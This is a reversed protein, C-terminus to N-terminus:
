YGYCAECKLKANIIINHVRGQLDEVRVTWVTCIIICHLYESSNSFLNLFNTAAATSQTPDLFTIWSNQSTVHHRTKFRHLVLLLKFTNNTRVHGHQQRSTLIWSSVLRRRTLPHQRAAKWIPTKRVYNSSNVIVIHM